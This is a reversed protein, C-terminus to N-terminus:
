IVAFFGASVATKGAAWLGILTDIADDDLDIARREVPKRDNPVPVLQRHPGTGVAKFVKHPLQGYIVREGNPGAIVFQTGREGSRVMQIGPLAGAVRQWQALKRATFAELATADIDELPM